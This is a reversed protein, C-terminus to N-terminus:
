PQLGPDVPVRLATALRNTQSAMAVVALLEGEMAASMGKQRAAATHSAICYDCGHAISVALYLMEKTPSDLAGPAMVGKLREFTHRLLEPHHALYKWFLNVDDVGRTAKIDDYVAQVEHSAASYDIPSHTM